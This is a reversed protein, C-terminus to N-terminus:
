WNSMARVKGDGVTKRAYFRYVQVDGSDLAKVRRGWLEVEHLLQEAQAPDSAVLENKTVLQELRRVILDRFSKSYDETVRLDLRLARLEAIMEESSWPHPTAPEGALWDQVAASSLRPTRLVYDTFVMEGGQKLAGVLTELLPKKNHVTFFAERGYVCDFTKDPKKLDELDVHVIPVKGAVSAEVSRAMAQAALTPSTELGSVWTGYKASIQRAANGLGASVDLVAKASTLGLPKLAEVAKDPGIPTRCDDGVVIEAAKVRIESWAAADPTQDAPAEQPKPAEGAVAAPVTEPAAPEEEDIGHWWALLKTKFRAPRGADDASAAEAAATKKATGDKAAPKVRAASNAVPAGPAETGFVKARLSSASSM